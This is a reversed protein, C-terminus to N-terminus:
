LRVEKQEDAPKTCRRPWATCCWSTPRRRTRRKARAGRRRLARARRSVVPHVRERADGGRAAIVDVATGNLEKVVRLPALRASGRTALVEFWWREEDGIYAWSVDFSLTMGSACEISVLM